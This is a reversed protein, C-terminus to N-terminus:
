KTFYDRTNEYTANISLQKNGNSEIYSNVVTDFDRNTNEADDKMFQLFKRNLVNEQEHNHEVRKVVETYTTNVILRGKCNRRKCRWSVGLKVDGDKNYVFNDLCLMVAGRQSAIFEFNLM